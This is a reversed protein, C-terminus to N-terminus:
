YPNDFAPIPTTHVTTLPSTVSSSLHSVTSPAVATSFAAIRNKLTTSIGYPVRTAPSHGNSALVSTM